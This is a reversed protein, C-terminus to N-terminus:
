GLAEITKGYGPYDASAAGTRWEAAAAVLSELYRNLPGRAVAEARSQDADCFMHFALMVTGRGPHGARAWASRYTDLLDRMAGGAMPIAMIGYGM